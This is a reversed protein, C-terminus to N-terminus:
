ASEALMPRGRRAREFVVTGCELGCKAQDVTIGLRDAMQESQYRLRRAVRNSEFYEATRSRKAELGEARRLKRRARERARAEPRSRCASLRARVDVRRYRARQRRQTKARVEPRKSYMRQYAARHEKCRPRWSVLRSTETDTRLQSAGDDFRLDVTHEVSFEEDIFARLDEYDFAM